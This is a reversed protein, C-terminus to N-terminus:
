RHYQKLYNFALAAHEALETAPDNVRQHTPLDNWAQLPGSRLHRLLNAPGIGEVQALAVLAAVEEDKM